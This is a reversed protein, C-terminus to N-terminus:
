FKKKLLVQYDNNSNAPNREIEISKNNEQDLQVHVVGSKVNVGPMVEYGKKEEKKISMNHESLDVPTDDTSVAKDPSLHQEGSSRGGSVPKQSPPVAPAPDKVNPPVEKAPPPPVIVAESESSQVPPVETFLYHKVAWSVSLLIGIIVVAVIRKKKMKHGRGSQM